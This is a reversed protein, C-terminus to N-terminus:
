WRGGLLVPSFGVLAGEGVAMGLDAPVRGLLAGKVLWSHGPLFVLKPSNKVM